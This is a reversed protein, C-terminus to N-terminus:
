KRRIFIKDLNRYPPTHNGDKDLIGARMLAELAEERTFGKKLRERAIDRLRKIDEESMTTHNYPLFLYLLKNIKFL